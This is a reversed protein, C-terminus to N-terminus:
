PRVGAEASRGRSERTETLLDRIAAIEESTVSLSILYNEVQRKVTM